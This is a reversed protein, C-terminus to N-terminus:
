KRSDPKNKLDEIPVFRRMFEVAEQWDNFNVEEATQIHRIAGHYAPRTGEAPPVDEVVFRIIFSYIIPSFDPKM